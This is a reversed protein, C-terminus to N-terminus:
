DHNDRGTIMAIKMKRGNKKLVYKDGLYDEEYQRQLSKIPVVISARGLERAINLAIASKGTGCTGHIFIIRRGKKILGVVENVIDKQTKGNSFRLPELKKGCTVEQKQFSEYLSWGDDIFIEEFKDIEDVFLDESTMLKREPKKNSIKKNDVGILRGESDFELRSM